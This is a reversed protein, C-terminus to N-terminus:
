KASYVIERKMPALIKLLENKERTAVHQNLSDRLIQVFIEFQATTVKLDLHSNKMTEGEYICDGGSLACLQNVVSEKLTALKIGKFSNELDPHKSANDILESVVVQLVPLGGMRALLTTNSQATNPSHHACASMLIIFVYTLYRTMHFGMTVVRITHHLSNLISIKFLIYRYLQKYESAATKKAAIKVRPL